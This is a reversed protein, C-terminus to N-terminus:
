EWTNKKEKEMLEQIKREEWDKGLFVNPGFVSFWHAFVGIGWFFATSYTWFEGLARWHSDQYATVAIIGINIFLYVVLHVYFGKIDKVRKKAARYKLHEKHNTEM